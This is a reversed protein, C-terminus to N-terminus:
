FFFLNHNTLLSYENHQEVGDRRKAVSKKSVFQQIKRVNQCYESKGSGELTSAEKESARKAPALHSELGDVCM